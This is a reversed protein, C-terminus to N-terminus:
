VNNNAPNGNRISNYRNIMSTIKNTGMIVLAYASLLLVVRSVGDIIPMDPLMHWWGRVTYAVFLLWLTLQVGLCLTCWAKAKFRQYMVSWVTYPLCMINVIALYPLTREDLLLAALSVAFYGFGVESWHFIGLFTGGKDIVHDCGHTQIASCVADATKSKTGVTKLLLLWTLALGTIDLGVIIMDAVSHWLGHVVFFYLCLFAFLWLIGRNRLSSMTEILHHQKYGPERADKMAHTLLANGSWAAIFTETDARETMGDSVYDVHRADVHTVVLWDGNVDTAVFPTPLTSIENKLTLAVGQSAVGYSLLLKQLGFFTKFSLNNFQQASYDKTYPVRLANLLTCFTNAPM